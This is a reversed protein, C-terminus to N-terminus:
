VPHGALFQPFIQLPQVVVIQPLVLHLAAYRDVTESMVNESLKVYYKKDSMADGSLRAFRIGTLPSPGCRGDWM